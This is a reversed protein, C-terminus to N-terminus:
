RHGHKKALDIFVSMPTTKRFQSRKMRADILKSVGFPIFGLSPIALSMHGTAIAGAIGAMGIATSLATAGPGGAWNILDQNIKSWDAEAKHYEQTLEDRFDRAISEIKNVDPTGNVTKWLRRLFGRFDGLREENRMECAFASDVKDLFKFDLSQFAKTLPSWVKADEPLDDGVSLIEHWKMRLNTYPFAGMIQSLYLATELNVGGRGVFIQSSNPEHTEDLALPDEDRLRSINRLQEGIEQDSFDPRAKHLEKAIAEPSVNLLSRKVDAEFGELDEELLRRNERFFDQGNKRIREAALQRTSYLLDKDFKGPDHVLTVLGEKVWPEIMTTFYVLKLTDEKFQDPHEIPNFPEAMTWPAHFPNIIFIEDAYLGFRFVNRMVADPHVDGLYLARLKQDQQPLLRALNTDQPWLESIFQYLRKIRDATINRKVDRWESSKDVGFIDNVAELLSLNRERLSPGVRPFKAKWDKRRKIKLRGM